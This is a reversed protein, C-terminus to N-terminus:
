WWWRRKGINPLSMNNCAFLDRLRGNCFSSATMESVKTELLAELVIMQCKLDGIDVGLNEMQSELVGTQRELIIIREEPTAADTKVTKSPRRSGSVVPAADTDHSFSSSASSSSSSSSSSLPQKKPAM